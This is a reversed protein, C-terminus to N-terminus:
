VWCLQKLCKLADLKGSLLKEIIKEIKADKIINSTKRQKEDQRKVKNLYYKAEKKLISIYMFINDKEQVKIVLRRHWAEVANTTRHRENACCWMDQSIRKQWQETFYKQFNEAKSDNEPMMELIALWGESIYQYPLLALNTTLRVINKLNDDTMMGLAKAKKYIAQNFHFFCGKVLVDPFISKAANIIAMEYDSKIFKVDLKFQSRLVSFVREYIQKTKNPLLCFFIPIINTSARTSGVDVHISLLQFFPRPVTKFTGDVFILDTNLAIERGEATAFIFFKPLDDKSEYVLFDNSLIEPFKVTDVTPFQCTEVGIARKRMKYLGDRKSKLSPIDVFDDEEELEGMTEEFIKSVSKWEKKVRERCKNMKVDILNKSFNPKCTHGSERLISGSDRSLTISGNCESRNVCRWITTGKKNTSNCHFQYGARLLKKKGKETNTFSFVPDSGKSTSAM